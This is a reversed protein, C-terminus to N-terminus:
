SFPAEHPAIGHRNARFVDRPVGKRHGVVKGIVADAADAVARGCLRELAEVGRRDHHDAFFVYEGRAMELGVNRPRGPWGSRPVHALRVHPHVAALAALREATGDTSGDDVFVLECEDAPLTQGLLSDLLPGIHEGPNYVPVVVSVRVM